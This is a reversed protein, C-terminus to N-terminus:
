TVTVAPQCGPQHQGSASVVVVSIDVCQQAVIVEIAMARLGLTMLYKWHYM